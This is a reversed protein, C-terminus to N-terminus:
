RLLTPKKTVKNFKESCLIARYSLNTREAIAKIQLNLFDKNKENNQASSDQAKNEIKM